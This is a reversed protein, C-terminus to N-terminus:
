ENLWGGEPPCEEPIGGPGATKLGERKSLVSGKSLLPTTEEALPDILLVVLVPGPANM